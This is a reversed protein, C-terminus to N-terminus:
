LPTRLDQGKFSLWTNRDTFRTSRPCNHRTKGRRSGARSGMARPAAHHFSGWGTADSRCPRGFLVRVQTVRTAVAHRSGRGGPTSRNLLVTRSGTRLAPSAACPASVSLRVSWLVARGFSRSSSEFRWLPLLLGADKWQVIECRTGRCLTSSQDGPQPGPTTDTPGGRCPPLPPVRVWLPRAVGVQKRSLGRM